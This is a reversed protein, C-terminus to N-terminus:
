VAAAEVEERPQPRKLVEIKSQILNLSTQRKGDSTDYTDM